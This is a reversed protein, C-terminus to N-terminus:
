YILGSHVNAVNIESGLASIPVADSRLSRSLPQPGCEESAWPPLSRTRVKRTFSEMEWCAAAAGAWPERCEQPPPQRWRPSRGWARRDPEGRRGREGQALLFAGYQPTHRPRRRQPIALRRFRRSTRLPCFAVPRRSPTPRGRPGLPPRPPPPPPRPQRPSASRRHGRAAGLAGAARAERGAQHGEPRAATGPQRCPGPRGGPRAGREARRKPAPLSAGPCGPRPSPTRALRSRRPGEATM